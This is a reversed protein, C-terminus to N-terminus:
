HGALYVLCRERKRAYRRKCMLTKGTLKPFGKEIIRVPGGGTHMETAEIM